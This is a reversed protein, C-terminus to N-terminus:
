FFLALALCFGILHRTQAAKARLTPYSPNKSRLISKVVKLQSLGPHAAYYAALRANLSAMGERASHFWSKNNVEVWLLSGIVDQFVGLDASHMADIAIHELRFGPIGFLASPQQGETACSEFYREHSILTARHDADARFTKFCLPGRQTADCLWCFKMSGYSRLRYFDLHWEWDGRDQLLAGQPHEQGGEIRHQLDWPTWPSGDHRCSPSLGRCLSTFSWALVSNIANYTHYGKSGKRRRM